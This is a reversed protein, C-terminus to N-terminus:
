IPKFCECNKCFGSSIERRNVGTLSWCGLGDIADPYTCWDPQKYQKRLESCLTDPKIAKVEEDTLLHWYKM